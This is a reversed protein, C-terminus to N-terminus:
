PHDHSQSVDQVIRMLREGWLRLCELKEDLYLHQDYVKHLGPKSHAIVLERVLDPVPLASLHTRVSRRIDQFTFGTGGGLAAIRKRADDWSNVPKCGGDHSFVYGGGFRPLEGLLKTMEDTLPVVHVARAKMREKPITWLGDSFESWLANGIESRRQGSLMMLQVCPGIPYGLKVCVHWLARLEANSLIRTRPEKPGIIKAPRLRDCPSRELGYADGRELAFNFIRSIYGLTHHAQYPVGRALIGDIIGLVNSKCIDTVARRGWHPLLERKIQREIERVRSVGRRHCDAVFDDAVSAFTHERRRQARQREVTPDKGEHMLVRWRRAEDRAAGLGLEPFTGLARRAPHKRGFRAVFVWTKRGTKSVRIALGRVEADRIQYRKAQPKLARVAADTLRVPAVNQGVFATPLSVVSM